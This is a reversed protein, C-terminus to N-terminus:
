PFLAKFKEYESAYTKGDGCGLENEKDRIKQVRNGPDPHTSLFTVTGEAKHDNVLKEFFVSSGDANYDTACLYEVSMEDADEEHSRSFGLGILGEAIDTLANQNEGVIIEILLRLGYAKTMQQTSHRKDAHAIEHGLVGALQDESDLYRILGTFIFIYGGPTCFANLVSDDEVIYVEWAFDGRHEVKGSNLIRDRIGDLYEYAEAHQERPLIKYDGSSLLEDRLQQGLAIDDEVTFINVGGCSYLIFFTFALFLIRM